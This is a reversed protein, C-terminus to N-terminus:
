AREEAGGPQPGEAGYTSVVTEGFRRTRRRALAGAREPLERKGHHEVVVTAGPRLVGPEGLAELTELALTGRYPPDLVVLDAETLAAGIKALGRPLTLALVAARDGLGLATLNDRLVRRTVAESEVFTAHVAGRSLAEIGLAGSGAYLDVVRLGVLPELAMFMAERVRDSTPRTELGRPALLRRGGLHGAIV